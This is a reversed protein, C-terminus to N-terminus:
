EKKELLNEELISLRQKLEIIENSYDMGLRKRITSIIKTPPTRGHKYTEAEQILLFDKGTAVTVGAESDRDIVQGPKALYDETEEKVSSKWIIIKEGDLFSYAGNFPESSARILRDIENATMSWDIQSDMPLRPYCRMSRNPNQIEPVISDDSIGNISKVFMESTNNEVFNYLDGINTKSNIPVSKKMIIPGLDLDATMQHITLTMQKEGAIIAWNRVANGRYRPLDGSHANLIGHPFIKILNDPILTNWNVSVGIDPKYKKLKEINETSDLSETLIFDSGIKKSLKRFDDPVRSYQYQSSESTIISLIQHGAKAIELISNYLIDTRGIAVVRM